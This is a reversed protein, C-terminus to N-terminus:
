LSYQPSTPEDRVQLADGVLAAMMRYQEEEPTAKFRKSFQDVVTELTLVLLPFATKLRQAVEEIYQGEKVQADSAGSPVIQSAGAQAPLPAAPTDPVASPSPQTMVTTPASADQGDANPVTAGVTNGRAAAASKRISAFEDRTGRLTYFL